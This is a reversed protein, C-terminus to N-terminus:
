KSYSFLSFLGAASNYNQTDLELNPTIIQILILSAVYHVMCKLQMNLMLVNKQSFVHCYTAIAYTLLCGVSDLFTTTTTTKCVAFDVFM